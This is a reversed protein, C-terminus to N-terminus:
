ALARAAYSNNSPDIVPDIDNLLYDIFSKNIAPDLNKVSRVFNIYAKCYKVVDSDTADIRYVGGQEQKSERVYAALPEAFYRTEGENRIFAELQNALQEADFYRFRLNVFAQYFQRTNM